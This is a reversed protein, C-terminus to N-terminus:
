IKNKLRALYFARDAHVSSPFAAASGEGRECFGGGVNGRPEPRHFSGSDALRRRWSWSSSTQLRDRM